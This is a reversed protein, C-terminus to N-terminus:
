AQERAAQIRAYRIKVAKERELLNRLEVTEQEWKAKEEPDFPSRHWREAIKLGTLSNLRWYRASNPERVQQEM